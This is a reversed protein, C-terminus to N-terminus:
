LSLYMASKEKLLSPDELNALPLLNPLKQDTPTAQFM